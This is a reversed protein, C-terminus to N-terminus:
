MEDKNLEKTYTISGVVLPEQPEQSSGNLLVPWDCLQASCWAEERGCFTSEDHNHTGTFGPIKCVSDIYYVTSSVIFNGKWKRKRETCRYNSNGNWKRKREMQM